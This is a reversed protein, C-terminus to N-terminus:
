QATRIPIRQQFLHVKGIQRALFNTALPLTPFAKFRELTQPELIGLELELYVPVASNTFLYLTEDTNGARVMNVNEYTNTLFTMPYGLRDFARLRFHVVGDTVRQYNTLGRDSMDMLRGFLDTRTLDSEHVSVSYRALTGVGNTAFQDFLGFPNNFTLIRYATATWTKNFQSLFYVEQIVNTRYTNTELLEQFMLPATLGIHCNINTPLNSARMQEMERTMLEMGARGGELVDVQAVNGTMAKQVQDFVGYLVLVILTMISVAVM